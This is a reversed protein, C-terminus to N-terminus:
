ILQVYPENTWKYFVQIPYFACEVVNTVNVQMSYVKHM